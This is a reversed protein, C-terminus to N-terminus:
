APAEAVPTHTCSRLCADAELLYMVKVVQPEAGIKFCLLVSEFLGVSRFKKRWALMSRLKQEAEDVDFYRCCCCWLMNSGSSSSGRKSTPCLTVLQPLLTSLRRNTVGLMRGVTAPRAWSGCSGMTFTRARSYDGAIESPSLYMLLWQFQAASCRDRLFWQLTAEEPLEGAGQSM